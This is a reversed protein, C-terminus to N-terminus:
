LRRAPAAAFDTRQTFRATVGLATPTHLRPGLPSAFDFV